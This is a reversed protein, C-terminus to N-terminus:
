MTKFLLNWSVPNSWVHGLNVFTIDNTLVMNTFSIYRLIDCKCRFEYFDDYSIMNDYFIKDTGMENM